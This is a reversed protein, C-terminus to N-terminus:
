IVGALLFFSKKTDDVWAGGVVATVTKVM